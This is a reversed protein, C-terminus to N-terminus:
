FAQLAAIGSAEAEACWAHLKQLTAQADHSRDDLVQALRQRLEALTAMKPREALWAQLRARADGDLWRGGDALAKRWQR